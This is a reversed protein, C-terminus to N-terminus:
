EYIPALDTIARLDRKQSRSQVVLKKFIKKELLSMIMQDVRDAAHREGAHRLKDALQELDRVSRRIALSTDLPTIDIPNTSIYGYASPRNKNTEDSPM